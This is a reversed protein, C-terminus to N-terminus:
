KKNYAKGNAKLNSYRHSKDKKKNKMYTKVRINKANIDPYIDTHVISVQPRVQLYMDGIVGNWNGQTHDSISHSNKERIM